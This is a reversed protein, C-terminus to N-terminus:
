MDRVYRERRRQAQGKHRASAASPQMPTIPSDIHSIHSPYFNDRGHQIGKLYLPKLLHRSLHLYNVQFDKPRVHDSPLLPVPVSNCERKKQNNGLRNNKESYRKHNSSSITVKCPKYMIVIARLDKQSKFIFNYSQM